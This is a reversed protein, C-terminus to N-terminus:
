NTESSVVKASLNFGRVILWVAMVLEQIAIQLLLVNYIVSLTGIVGFYSLLGGATAAVGGFLGWISFWRPILESQYLLYYLILTALGISIPWFINFAWDRVAILLIGSSQFYSNDPAGAYVYNKSLTLLTLISIVTILFLVCEIIGAVVYGLALTKNQKSLIPYFIRGENYDIFPIITRDNLKQVEQILQVVKSTSPKPLDSEPILLPEEVSSEMMSESEIDSHGSNGKFISSINDFGGIKHRSKSELGSDDASNKRRFM